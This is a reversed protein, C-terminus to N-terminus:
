HDKFSNCLAINKGIFANLSCPLSRKVHRSIISAKMPDPSFTFLLYENIPQLICTNLFGTSM